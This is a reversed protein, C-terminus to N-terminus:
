NSPTVAAYTKLWELPYHGQAHHIEIRIVHVPAAFHLVSDGVNLSRAIWQEEPSLEVVLVDSGVEYRCLM